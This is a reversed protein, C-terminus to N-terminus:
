PIFGAPWMRPEAGILEHLDALWAPLLPRAEPPRALGAVVLDNLAPPLLPQYLRVSRPAARLQPYPNDATAEPFPMEGTLLEFLVVALGFVDAPPGARERSCVEPAIYPQTGYVGKPRRTDLTRALGLDCLVPRGSAVVINSPKVDLHVFSRRHMHHLAAGVHIVARLAEDPPLHGDPAERLVAALSPGELYEMLVHKPGGLGFCRVIGPHALSTLIQAERRAQKPSHLIKCAMPCWSPHHWVLYVPDDDGGKVTGLVTVDPTVRTGLSM